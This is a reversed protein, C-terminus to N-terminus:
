FNRGVRFVLDVGPGGPELDETLGMRWEAGARTTLIWGFDLSLERRDLAPLSTGRYYPSHYFLNAYLAQNDWLRHRLGSSLALFTTRQFSSLRGHSPTVGVGVSGEFLLRPSVPTRLTNLLAVSPVGKGYGDPGTATPLTVSVVSQLRPTHRFGVALSLDGLFM